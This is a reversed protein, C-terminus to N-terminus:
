ENPARPEDNLARKLNHEEIGKSAMRDDACVAGDVFNVPCFCSLMSHYEVTPPIRNKVTYCIKISVFHVYCSFVSFLRAVDM